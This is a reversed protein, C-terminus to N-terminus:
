TTQRPRQTAQAATIRPTIFLTESVFEKNVNPTQYILNVNKGRVKHASMGDPIKPTSVIRSLQIVVVAFPGM